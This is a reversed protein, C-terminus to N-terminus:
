LEVCMTSDKVIFLELAKVLDYSLFRSPRVYRLISTMVSKSLHSGLMVSIEIWESLYVSSKFVNRITISAATFRPCEMLIPVIVLSEVSM